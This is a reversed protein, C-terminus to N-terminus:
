RGSFPHDGEYGLEEIRQEAWVPIEIGDGALISSVLRGDEAWMHCSNLNFKMGALKDETTEADRWSDATDPFKTRMSWMSQVAVPAMARLLATIHTCGSAAGFLENVKRNFGRAISVGVLQDYRPEIGVCDLHPTVFMEADAEVIELSPFDLLLDLVMHHVDLPDPDGEFYLGPPKTDRVEGRLRLRNAAEAFARVHYQRHHIEEGTPEQM